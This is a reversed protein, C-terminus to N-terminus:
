ALQRWKNVNEVPDGLRTAFNVPFQEIYTL